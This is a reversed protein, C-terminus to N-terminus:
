FIIIFHKNLIYDANLSLVVCFWPTAFPWVRQAVLVLTKLHGLQLDWPVRSGTQVDPLWASLPTPAILLVYHTLRLRRSSVRTSFDFVDSDLESSVNPCSVRRSFLLPLPPCLGSPFCHTALTPAPLPVLHGGGARSVCHQGWPWSGCKTESTSPYKQAEAKSGVIWHKGTVKM